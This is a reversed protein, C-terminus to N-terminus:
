RKIANKFFNSHKSQSLLSIHLNENSRKTVKKYDENDKRLKDKPTENENDSELIKSIELMTKDIKFKTPQILSENSHSSIKRGQSKLSDSQKIKKPHNRTKGEEEIVLTKLKQLGDIMNDIIKIKEHNVSESKNLRPNNIANAFTLNRNKKISSNSSESEESHSQDQQNVLLYM